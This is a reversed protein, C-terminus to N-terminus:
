MMADGGLVLAPSMRLFSFVDSRMGETIEVVEKEESELIELAM